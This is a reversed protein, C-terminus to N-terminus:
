YRKHTIRSFKMLGQIMDTQFILQHVSKVTNGFMKGFVKDWPAFVSDVKVPAVVIDFGM